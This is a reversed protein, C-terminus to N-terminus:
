VPPLFPIVVCVSCAVLTGAIICRQSYMSFEMFRRSLATAVIGAKLPQPSYNFVELSVMRQHPVYWRAARPLLLIKNTKHLPWQKPSHWARLACATRVCHSTKFTPGYESEVKPGKQCTKPEMGPTKKLKRHM